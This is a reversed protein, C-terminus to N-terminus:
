KKILNIGDYEYKITNYTITGSIVHGKSDIHLEMQEPYEGYYGVSEIDTIVEPIQYESNEKNELINKEATDIFAYVYEEESLNIHEKAPEKLFEIVIENQISYVSALVLLIISLFMILNNGKSKKLEYSAKRRIMYVTMNYLIQGYILAFVISLLSSALYYDKLNYINNLISIISWLIIVIFYTIRVIKRENNKNPITKRFTLISTLIIVLINISVTIIYNYLNNELANIKFLYAILIYIGTTILYGLGVLIVFTILFKFIIKLTSDVEKCEKSKTRSIRKVKEIEKTYELEEDEEIKKSHITEELPDHQEIEEVQDDDKISKDIEDSKIIEEDEETQVVLKSNSDDLSRDLSDNSAEDIPRMVSNDSELEAVNKEELQEIENVEEIPMINNEKSESNEEILMGGELNIENVDKVQETLDENLVAENNAEEIPKIVLNDSVIPKLVNDSITNVEDIPKLDNLNNDLNDVIPKLDNSSTEELDLKQFCVKCFNTEGDNVAGCVKCKIEM